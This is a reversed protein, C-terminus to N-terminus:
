QDQQANTSVRTLDQQANSAETNAEAAAAGAASAAAMADNATAEASERNARAAMDVPLVYATASVTCDQLAQVYTQKPLIDGGISFKRPKKEIANKPFEVKPAAGKSVKKVMTALFHAFSGM